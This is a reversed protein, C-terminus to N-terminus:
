ASALSNTFGTYDDFTESKKAFMELCKTVALGQVAVTDGSLHESSSGRFFSALWLWALSTRWETFSNFRHCKGPFPKCLLLSQWWQILCNFRHCKVPFLIFLLSQWWQILCNFMHCKVPFFIYLLSQWWQILCNFRHCKVGYCPGAEPVGSLGVRTQRADRLLSLFWSCSTCPPRSSCRSCTQTMLERCAKPTWPATTLLFHAARVFHGDHHGDHTEFWVCFLWSLWTPRSFIQTMLERYDFLKRSCSPINWLGDSHWDHTEFRVSVCCDPVGPRCLCPRRRRRARRFSSGRSLKKKKRKKSRRKSIHWQLWADSEEKTVPLNQGFRRQITTTTTTNKTTREASSTRFCSVCTM